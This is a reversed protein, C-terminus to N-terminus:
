TLTAGAAISFDVAGSGNVITVTKNSSNTLAINSNGQVILGGLTINNGSNVNSIIGSIGAPFIVIDNAAPLTNNNWNAATAWSGGTASGDWIKQSSATYVVLVAIVLIRLKKM